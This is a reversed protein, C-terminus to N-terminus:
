DFKISKLFAEFRPREQEALQKDGDLKVFWMRDRVQVMVVFITRVENSFEFLEGPNGALDVKISAGALQDESIPELGVQKRWRNVLSLRDGGASSITMVVRPPDQGAAVARDNDIVEFSAVSFPVPRAVAWEAPKKFSPTKSEAPQAREAGHPNGGQAPMQPPPMQPRARPRGIINILYAAGADLALKESRVALDDADIPPLSMQNRWRNLNNLVQPEIPMGPATPLVTVSMELAPDGGLSITKYRMANGPAPLEIWGEPLTWAPKDPEPQGNPTSAQQKVFSVTTLFQRVQPEKAAVADVGGELKFFWLSQDHPLVAGIMRQMKPHSVANGELFAQAQLSEHKPVTYTTIQEQRDCGTLLLLAVCAGSPWTRFAIFSRHKQM